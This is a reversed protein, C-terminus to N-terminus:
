KCKLKDRKQEVHAVFDTVLQDLGQRDSSLWSCFYCCCLRELFVEIWSQLHHGRCESSNLFIINKDKFSSVSVQVGTKYKETNGEEEGADGLLCFIHIQDVM